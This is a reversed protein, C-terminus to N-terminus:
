INEEFKVKSKEHLVEIFFVCHKLIEHFDRLHTKKTKASKEVYQSFGKKLPKNLRRKTTQIIFKIEDAEVRVLISGM